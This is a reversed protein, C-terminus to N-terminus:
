MLKGGQKPAWKLIHLTRSCSVRPTAKSSMYSAVDAVRAGSGALSTSLRIVDSFKM